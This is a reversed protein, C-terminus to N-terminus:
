HHYLSMVEDHSLARSYLRVDDIMGRFWERDSGRGAKGIVLDTDRTLLPGSDSSSSAQLWRHIGDSLRPLCPLRPLRPM